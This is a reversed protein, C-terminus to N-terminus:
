NVCMSMVDGPNTWGVKYQISISRIPCCNSILFHGDTLDHSSVQRAIGVVFHHGHALAPEGQGWTKSQPTQTPLDTM